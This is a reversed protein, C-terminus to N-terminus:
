PAEALIRNTCEAIYDVDADSLNVGIPLVLHQRWYLETRSLEDRRCQEFDPQLHLPYFRWKTEVGLASYREGARARDHRLFRMPYYLFAHPREASTEPLGVLERREIRGTLRRANAQRRETYRASRRAAHLAAAVQLAHPRRAQYRAHRDLGFSEIEAVGDAPSRLGGFFAARLILPKLRYAVYTTYLRNWTERPEPAGLALGGVAEWVDDRNTLLAGGLIGGFPKDVNFSLIAADGWSGALRGGVRVGGPMHVANEVLFLGRRDALARLAPMDASRGYMHTVLLAQTAPTCLREASAPDLTFDEGVDGLAVQSALHRVVTATPRHMFSPLIWEGRLGMTQGLLHAGSRARDLLLCHKVGYQACLASRLAEGAAEPSLAAFLDRFRWQPQVLTPVRFRGPLPPQLRLRPDIM